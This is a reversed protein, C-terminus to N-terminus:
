IMVSKLLNNIHAKEILKRENLVMRSLSYGREQQFAFLREFATLCPYADTTKSISKHKAM